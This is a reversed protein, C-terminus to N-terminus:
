WTACRWGWLPGRRDLLPRRRVVILRVWFLLISWHAASAPGGQLRVPAGHNQNQADQRENDGTHADDETRHGPDHAVIVQLLHPSAAHVRLPFSHGVAPSDATHNCGNEIYNAKETADYIDNEDECDDARAPSRAAPHLL